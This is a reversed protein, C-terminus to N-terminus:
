LPRRCVFIEYSGPELESHEFVVSRAQFGAAQLLELWTARAFLGEVHRDAEVRISGGADRLLYAYDVLCTTDGPDPDWTWELYRLGRGGSDSGGHDTSTIFNERIHDPAFVASGGPRCHVYATEIACRLDEETTMYAVADHVFVCDFLRGLRTDRMDGQLHECEPNLARSHALMPESLDILTMRFRAKLHSANNGGGSGLELLTHCPPECTEVLLEQFFASEEAYEEPPSLLPWWEALTRYLKPPDDNQTM